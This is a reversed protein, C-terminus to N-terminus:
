QSVNICRVITEDVIYNGMLYGVDDRVIVEIPACCVFISPADYHLPECCLPGLHLSCTHAEKAMFLVCCILQM